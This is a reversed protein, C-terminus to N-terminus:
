SDLFEAASPTLLSGILVGYVTFQIVSVLIALLRVEEPIEPLLQPNTLFVLLFITVFVLGVASLIISGWRAQRQGKTFGVICLVELTIRLLCFVIGIPNGSSLNGIIGLVNLPILISEGAIAAIVSAPIGKRRRRSRSRRRPRAPRPAPEDDYEDDAGYWAAAVDYPISVTNGCSKCRFKKGAHNDAVRYGRGCRCSVRISM